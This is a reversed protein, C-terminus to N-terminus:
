QPQENIIKDVQTIKIRPIFLAKKNPKKVLTAMKTGNQPPDSGIIRPEFESLRWLNILRKFLNM